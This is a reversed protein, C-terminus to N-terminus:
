DTRTAAIYGTMCIRAIWPVPKPQPRGHGDKWCWPLRSCAVRKGRRAHTNGSASQGSQTIAVTMTAQMGIHACIADSRAAGSVNSDITRCAPILSLLHPASAADGRETSEGRGAVDEKLLRDIRQIHVFGCDRHRKDLRGLPPAARAHCSRSCAPLTSAEPPSAPSTMAPATPKAILGVRAVVANLALQAFGPV